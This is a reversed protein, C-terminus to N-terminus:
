EAAVDSTSKIIKVHQEYFQLMKQPCRSYVIKTDHQTKHGNKWSLYVILKGTNEDHCADISAVQDEWSGAPPTWAKAASAPPTTSAPHSDRKARKTGNTPTNASAPRGRKKQTGAKSDGVIKDRGGVSALYADLVASANERLNEEDEWTQDEKKDWGEWKVKFKIVGQKYVHGLIKEVIFVDEGMDEDEEDDEVGEEKVGEEEDKSGGQIPTPADNDDGFVDDDNDKAAIPVVIDGADSAEDDSIAPRSTLRRYISQFMASDIPLTAFSPAYSPIRIAPPM